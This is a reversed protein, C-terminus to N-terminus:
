FAVYIMRIELVLTYGRDEEEESRQLGTLVRQARQQDDISRTELVGPQCLLLPPGRKLLEAMVVGLLPQLCEEMLSCKDLLQLSVLLHQQVRSVGGVLCVCM